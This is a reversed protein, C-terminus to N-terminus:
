VTCIHRKPKSPRNYKLCKHFIMVDEKKPLLGMLHLCHVSMIKATLESTKLEFLNLCSVITSSKLLLLSM